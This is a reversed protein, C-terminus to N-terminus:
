FVGAASLGAAGAGGAIALAGTIAGVIGLLRMTEATQRDTDNLLDSKARSDNVIAVGTGAGAVFVGAIAAIAGGTTLPSMVHEGM